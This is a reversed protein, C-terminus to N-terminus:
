FLKTQGIAENILSHWEQVKKEDRNGPALIEILDSAEILSLEKTSSKRYLHNLIIKRNSKFESSLMSVLYKQQRETIPKM